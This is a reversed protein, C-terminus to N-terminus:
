GHQTTCTRQMFSGTRRQLAHSAGPVDRGARELEKSAKCYVVNQETKKIHTVCCIIGLHGARRHEQGQVGLKIPPHLCQFLHFTAQIYEQAQM